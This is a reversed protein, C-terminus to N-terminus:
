SYYEEKIKFYTESIIGSVYNGLGKRTEKDLDKTYIPEGYEVVVTAKKIFPVHDEFIAASNVITIPIIPVGGKDAIKFSSIM